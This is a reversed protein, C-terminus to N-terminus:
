KLFNLSLKLKLIYYAFFFQNFLTNIRTFDSCIRLFSLFGIKKRYFRLRFIFRSSWALFSKGGAFAYTLFAFDTQFPKNCILSNMCKIIILGHFLHTNLFYTNSGSIPFLSCRRFCHQYHLLHINLICKWFWILYCEWLPNGTM